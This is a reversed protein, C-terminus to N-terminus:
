KVDLTFRESSGLGESLQEVVAPRTHTLHDSVYEGEAHVAPSVHSIEYYRDDLPSKSLIFYDKYLRLVRKAFGNQEEPLPSAASDDRPHDSPNQEQQPVQIDPAQMGEHAVAMWVDDLESPPTTSSVSGHRSTLSEMNSNSRIALCISRTEMLNEKTSSETELGGSIVSSLLETIDVLSTLLFRNEGTIASPLQGFLVLYSVEHGDRDTATIIDCSKGVAHQISLLLGEGDELNESPL